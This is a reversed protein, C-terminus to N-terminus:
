MSAQPGQPSPRPGKIHFSTPAAVRVGLLLWNAVLTKAPVVLGLAVIMPSLGWYYLERAMLSERMVAEM